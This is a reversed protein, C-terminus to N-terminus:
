EVLLAFVAGAASLIAGRAASQVAAAVESSTASKLALYRARLIRELREDRLGALRSAYAGAVLEAVEELRPMIEARVTLKSNELEGRLQSIIQRGLASEEGSV